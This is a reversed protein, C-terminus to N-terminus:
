ARARSTSASGPRGRAVGPHAHLDVQGSGGSQPVPRHCLGAHTRRRRCASTTRAATDRERRSRRSRRGTKGVGRVVRYPATRAAHRLRQRTAAARASANDRHGSKPRAASRQPVDGARAHELWRPTRAATPDQRTAPGQRDRRPRRGRRRRAGRPHAAVQPARGQHRRSHRPRHVPAAVHLVDRGSRRVPLGLTKNILIWRPLDQWDVLTVAVGTAGARATRGIRHVYSRRTTPATTTSSTPSGTSTSAAHLSM